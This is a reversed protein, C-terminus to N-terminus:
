AARGGYAGVASPLLSGATNGAVGAVVAGWYSWPAATLPEPVGRAISFGALPLILESPIPIAASEVTMALVVGLYGFTAYARELVPMVYADIADLVDTDDPKLVRPPAPFFSRQPVGTRWVVADASSSRSRSPTARTPLASRSTPM